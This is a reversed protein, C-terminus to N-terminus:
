VRSFTLSRSQTILSFKQFRQLENVQVKSAYHLRKIGRIADGIDDKLLISLIRDIITRNPQGVCAYVNKADVVDFALSTSQFISDRALAFCIRIDRVQLVNLIKRMDGGSLEYLADKGDVTVQLREEQIVYELRPM